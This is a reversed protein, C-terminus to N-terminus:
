WYYGYWNYWNDYIYVYSYNNNGNMLMKYCLTFGMKNTTKM